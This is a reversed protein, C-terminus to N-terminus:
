VLTAPIVRDLLDCVERVFGPGDFDAVLEVQEPLIVGVIDGWLKGGIENLSSRDYQPGSPDLDNGRRDGTAAPRLVQITQGTQATRRHVVEVEV